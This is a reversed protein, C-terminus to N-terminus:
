DKPRFVTAKNLGLPPNSNAGNGLANEETGREIRLKKGQVTKVEEESTM